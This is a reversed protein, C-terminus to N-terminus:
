LIEGLDINMRWTIGNSPHVSFLLQKPAGSVTMSGLSYPDTGKLSGNMIIEGGIKDFNANTHFHGLITYHPYLNKQSTLIQTLNADARKLAYFPIGGFSKINDGHMLLFNWDYIAKTVFISKPIDFLINKDGSCAMETMKMVLFDFNDYRQHFYPKKKFRGHNGVVGTVEVVKFEAALSKFMQALKDALQIVQECMVSGRMLEEHIIGSVLDGLLFVQIKDYSFGAMLKQQKLVTETVHDLRRAMIDIDYANLDMIEESRVEEGAHVDGILLVMTEKSKTKCDGATIKKATPVYAAIHENFTSLVRNELANQKVSDRYKAKWYSESQVAEAKTTDMEVEALGDMYAAIAKRAAHRTINCAKSLAYDSIDPSSHITSIIKSSM